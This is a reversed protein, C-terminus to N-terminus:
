IKTVEERQKKNQKSLDLEEGGNRKGKYVPWSSEHGRETRKWAWSDRTNKM